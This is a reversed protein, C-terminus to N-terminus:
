PFMRLTATIPDDRDTNERRVETLTMTAAIILDASPNGLSRGLHDFQFREPSRDSPRPASEEFHFLFSKM